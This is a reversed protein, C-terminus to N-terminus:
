RPDVAGRRGPLRHVPQGVAPQRTQQPAGDDDEVVGVAVGVLPSPRDQRLLEGALALHHDLNREVRMQAGAADDLAGGLHRAGVRRLNTSTAAASASCKGALSSRPRSRGSQSLALRAPRDAGRHREGGVRARAAGGGSGRHRGGDVGAAQATEGITLNATGAPPTCGSVSRRTSAGRGGLM